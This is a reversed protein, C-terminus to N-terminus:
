CKLENILLECHVIDFVFHISLFSVSINCVQTSVDDVAARLLLKMDLLSWKKDNDQAMHDRLKDFILVDELVGVASDCSDQMGGLVRSRARGSGEIAREHRLTYIDASMHNLHSRLEHSIYRVFGRNLIMAMAVATERDGELFTHFVNSAVMPVLQLYSYASIESESLRIAGHMDYLRCCSFIVIFSLIYVFFTCSSWLAKIRDNKDGTGNINNGGLILQLVVDGDLQVSLALILAFGVSILM